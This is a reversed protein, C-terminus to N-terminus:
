KTNENTIYYSTVYTCVNNQTFTALSLSLHKKNHAPTIETINFVFM